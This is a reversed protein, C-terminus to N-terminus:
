KKKKSKMKYRQDFYVLDSSSFPDNLLRTCVFEFLSMNCKTLPKVLIIALVADSSRRQQERNVLDSLM